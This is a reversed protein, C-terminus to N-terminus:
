SQHVVQSLHNLEERLRLRATNLEREVTQLSNLNLGKRLTQKWGGAALSEALQVPWFGGVRSTVVLKPLPTVGGLMAYVVKRRAALTADEVLALGSLDLKLGDASAFAAVSLRGPALPLRERRLLVGHRFWILESGFEDNGATNLHAAVAWAVKAETSLESRPRQLQSGVGLGKAGPPPTSCELTAPPVRFGTGPPAVSWGVSLVARRQTWGHGCCDQLRDLRRGDLTLPVPCLFARECLARHVEMGQSAGGTLRRWLPPADLSQNSVTLVTGKPKAIQRQPSLTRGDWCLKTLSDQFELLFSRKQQIALARLGQVFDDLAPNHQEPSCFAAEVEHPEWMGQKWGHSTGRETEELVYFESVPGVSFVTEKAKVVVRIESAGAAVAGQLLKLIWAGPDALQFQSLKELAQAQALTFEGASDREGEAYEGDLFDELEM